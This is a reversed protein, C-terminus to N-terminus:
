YSQRKNSKWYKKLSNLFNFPRSLFVITNLLIAKLSGKRYSRFHSPLPQPFVVPPSTWPVCIIEPINTGGLPEALIMTGDYGFFYRQGGTQSRIETLSKNKFSLVSNSGNRVFMLNTLTGDILTYGTKTAFNLIALGSNGHNKGSPNKYEVDAPITPNYEILVVTPKLITLGEWCALDDGDVDISLVDIHTIENSECIRDLSYPGDPQVWCFLKLIGDKNVNQNLTSFKEQNAEIFCGKWGIEMLHACNSLYKGDWAGFELFYGQAIGEQSLIEQLMGDEGGQSNVNYRYTYLDKM